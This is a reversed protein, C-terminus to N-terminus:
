SQYFYALSFVVMSIVVTALLAGLMSRQDTKGSIREAENVLRYSNQYEPRFRSLLFYYLLTYITTAWIAEAKGYHINLYSIILANSVIYIFIGVTWINAQRPNECKRQLDYQAGCSPCKLRFSFRFGTTKIDNNCQECQVPKGALYSSPQYQLYVKLHNGSEYSKQRIYSYFDFVSPKCSLSFCYINMATM